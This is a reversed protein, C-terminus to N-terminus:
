SVEGVGGSYTEEASCPQLCHRFGAQNSEPGFGFHNRWINKKDETSLFINEKKQKFYLSIHLHETHLCFKKRQTNLSIVFIIQFFIKGIAM